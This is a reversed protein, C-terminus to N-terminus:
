LGVSEPAKGRRPQWAFQQERTSFRCGGVMPFGLVGLREPPEVSAQGPPRFNAITKLAYKADRRGQVACHSARLITLATVAQTLIFSNACITM